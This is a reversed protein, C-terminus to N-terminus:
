NLESLLAFAEQKRAEDGFETAPMQSILALEKKAEDIQKKKALARAYDLHFMIYGKRLETAKKLHALAEDLNGWDLGLPKRVVKPQEALKLHARGLIYHASALVQEGANNLKIAKEADDRTAKVMDAVSLVGKFLAVKGRAAARRVYGLAHNPNQAVAEEALELAKLYIKEQESEKQEDGYLILARSYRCLVDYDKPALKYAEEIAKKAEALNRAELMADTKECLAKVDQAALRLPALLLLVVLLRNM